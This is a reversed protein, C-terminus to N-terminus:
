LMAVYVYLKRVVNCCITYTAINHSIHLTYCNGSCQMQMNVCVDQVSNVPVSEHKLMHSPYWKKEQAQM